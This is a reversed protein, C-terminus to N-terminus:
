GAGPQGLLQAAREGVLQVGYLNPPLDARPKNLCGIAHHIGRLTEWTNQVQLVLLDGRTRHLGDALKVTMAIEFESFAGLLAHRREQFPQPLSGDPVAAKGLEAKIRCGQPVPKGAINPM